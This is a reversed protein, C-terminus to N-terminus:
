LVRSISLSEHMVNTKVIISLSFCGPIADFDSRSKRIDNSSIIQNANRVEHYFWATDAEDFFETMEPDAEGSSIDILPIKALLDTSIAFETIL